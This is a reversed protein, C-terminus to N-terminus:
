RAMVNIAGTAILLAVVGGMLFPFGFIWLTQYLFRRWIQKRLQELAPDSQSNIMVRWITRSVASFPNGGAAMDLPVGAVPPFHRLYAVQKARLRFYLTLAGAFWTVVLVFTVINQAAPPIHM